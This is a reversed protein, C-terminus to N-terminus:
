KEYIFILGGKGSPKIAINGVKLTNEVEAKDINLQQNSISAVENGNDFFSLKTDSLRTKFRSQEGNKTGYLELWNDSFKMHQGFSTLQQENQASRTIAMEISDKQQTLTTKTTKLERDFYSNIAYLTSAYVEWYNNFAGRLATAGTDSGNIIVNMATEVNVWMTELVTTDVGTEKAIDLIYEHEVRTHKYTMIFESKESATIYDDSTIKNFQEQIMDSQDTLSGLVGNIEDNTDEPAPRWDTAVGSNEVQVDTIWITGSQKVWAYVYLYDIDSKTLTATCTLRTWKGVKLNSPSINTSMIIYDSNAGVQRGKLEFGFVDNFTSADEVYYWLSITYPEGTRWEMESNFTQQIGHWKDTTTNTASLKVSNHGGFQRTTDLTAISSPSWQDVGKSFCSNRVFNRGGVKMDTTTITLKTPKIEVNGDSDIFFTTDGTKNVAKFNYAQIYQGNVYLDGDEIFLGQKVGHSTVKNFMEEDTIADVTGQAINLAIDANCEQAYVNYAQLAKNYNTINTKIRSIEQETFLYDPISSEISAQLTANAVTLAGHLETLKTKKSANLNTSAVMGEYQVTIDAM